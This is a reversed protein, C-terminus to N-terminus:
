AESAPVLYGWNGSSDNVARFKANSSRFCQSDLMSFDGQDRPHEIYEVVSDNQVFLLLAIGDSDEISTRREVPWKFGLIQEAEEDGSYPGLICVKDWTTPVAKMLDISTRPRANFQDSIRSSYDTCGTCTAVLVIAAFRDVRM